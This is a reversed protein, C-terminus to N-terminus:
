CLYPFDQPNEIEATHQTVKTTSRVSNVDDVGATQLLGVLTNSVPNFEATRGWKPALSGQSM